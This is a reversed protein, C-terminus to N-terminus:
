KQVPVAASSAIKLAMKSNYRGACLFGDIVFVLWFIAILWFVGVIGAIGFYYLPLVVFLLFVFIGLVPRDCYLYGAGPVCLNLVAALLGSKKRAEYELMANAQSPPSNPPTQGSSIQSIEGSLNSGCHKCKIAEAKITEACYPCKKIELNDTM